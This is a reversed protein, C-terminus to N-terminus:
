RLAQELTAETRIGELEVGLGVITQAVEPRIGVLTADAGLLRVAQITEFLGRAVLTDVVPVGTIDLILRRARTQEVSALAQAQLEHLRRSDLAGILPMVLTGASVPLVPVSMERIAERQATVEALLEEQAAARAGLEDLTRRLEVTRKSVEAELHANAKELSRRATDAAEEARRSAELADRNARAGMYGFFSVQLVLLAPGVLLNPRLGGDVTNPPVGVVALGVAVLAVVGTLLVQWPRLVLSAIFVSLALFFLTALLSGRVIVAVLPGVLIPTLLLVAAVTLRGQVALALSVAVLASMSLLALSTSTQGPQLLVLGSAALLFSGLILDITVLLQGRRRIDPDSHTVTLLRRLSSISM